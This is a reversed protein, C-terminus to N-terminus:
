SSMTQFALTCNKMRTRSGNASLRSRDDNASRAKDITVTGKDGVNFRILDDTELGLRRRVVKRITIRGDASMRSHMDRM